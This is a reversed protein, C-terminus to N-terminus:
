SAIIALMLSASDMKINPGSLRLVLQFPAELPDAETSADDAYFGYVPHRIALYGGFNALVVGILTGRRGSPEARSLRRPRSPGM